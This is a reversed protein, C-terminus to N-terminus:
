WMCGSMVLRGVSAQSPWLEKGQVPLPGPEKRWRWVVDVSELTFLFLMGKLSASCTDGDWFGGASGRGECKSDPFVSASPLAQFLPATLTQSERIYERM